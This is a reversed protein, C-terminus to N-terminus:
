LLSPGLLPWIYITTQPGAPIIVGGEPDGVSIDVLGEKPVPAATTNQEAPGTRPLLQHLLANTEKQQAVQRATTVVVQDVATGMHEVRARWCRSVLGEMTMQGHITHETSDQWQRHSVMDEVEVHAWLAEGTGLFPSAACPSRACGHLPGEMDAPSFEHPSEVAEEVASAPM